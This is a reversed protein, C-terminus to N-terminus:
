YYYYFLVQTYKLMADWSLGPTTYYHAPDLDYAEMCNNRFDEFVNALLLVDTKLYIDSYEGLTKVQFTTWVKQAHNYEDDNINSDYLKSYFSDKEPLTTVDLKSLSSIYDYPFVGKRKLLEIQMPSYENQFEKEVIDLNKLYSALKDLSSPMFRFSDIFRFSIISDDM